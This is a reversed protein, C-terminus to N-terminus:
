PNSHTMEFESSLDESTVKVLLYSSSSAASIIHRNRSHFGGKAKLKKNSNAGPSLRTEKGGGCEWKGQCCGGTELFGYRLGKLLDLGSGERRGERKVEKGEKRGSMTM